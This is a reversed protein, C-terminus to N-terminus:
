VPRSNVPLRSHQKTFSYAENRQAENEEQCIPSIHSHIM